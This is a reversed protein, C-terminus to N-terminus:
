VLSEARSPYAYLLGGAYFAGIREEELITVRDPSALAPVREFQAADISDVDVRKRDANVRLMTIPLLRRPALAKPAEGDSSGEAEEDAEGTEADAGDALPLEVELYRVLMESRDVWIDVVTGATEGDLAVVEFGRPDPGASVSYDEAIRMPVIADRGDITLEPEDHREVYAAPGVNALMPDGIPELPSGAARATREASLERDDRAFSPAHYEGGEPLIFTKPKPILISNEPLVRDMTDSELPYGERRDEMRLWYILGFFFIWFLYLTVQALDIYSTFENFM